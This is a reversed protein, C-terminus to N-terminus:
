KKEAQGKGRSGGRKLRGVTTGRANYVIVKEAGSSGRRPELSHKRDGHRGVIPCFGKRHECTGTGCKSCHSAM